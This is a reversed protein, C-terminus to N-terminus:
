PSFSITIYSKHDDVDYKIDNILWSKDNLMDIKIKEHHLTLKKIFINRYTRLKRARIRKASLVRIYTKNKTIQNQYFKFLKLLKTTPATIKLEFQAGRYSPQQMSIVEFVGNYTNLINNKINSQLSIFCSLSKPKTVPVDNKQQYELLIDDLDKIANLRRHESDTLSEPDFDVDSRESTIIQTM